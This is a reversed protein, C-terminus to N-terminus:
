QHLPNNIYSPVTQRTADRVYSRNPSTHGGEEDYYRPDSYGDRELSERTPSNIYSPVTQRTADRAYSRNPSTHGGEEDYYHPDSYGDRELSERTPSNIYIPDPTITQYIADRASPGNPSTYGEEEGTGVTTQVLAAPGGLNYAASETMYINNTRSPPINPPAIYDYADELVVEKTRRTLLCLIVVVTM